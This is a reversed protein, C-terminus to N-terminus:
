ESEIGMYRAVLVLADDTDRGYQSLIRDAEQQPPTRLSLTEAFDTRIGDTALVLTDGRAVPLTSPRLSPLQYGVVGGWQVVTERAPSAKRDARLLIGEVNGVGLWTMTSDLASFSVLTIVAGRTRLLQQHCSQVLPILPEHAALGLADVAVDAAEAADPGHGLGDVVAVLVGGPFPQVRHRDGSLPAGALGRAAVGWELLPPDPFVDTSM